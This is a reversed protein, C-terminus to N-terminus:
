SNGHPHHLLNFLTVRIVKLVNVKLQTKTVHIKNINDLSYICILTSNQIYFYACMNTYVCQTQTALLRLVSLM